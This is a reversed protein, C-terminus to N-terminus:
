YGDKAINVSSTMSVIQEGNTKIRTDQLIYIYEISFLNKNVDNNKKNKKDLNLIYQM